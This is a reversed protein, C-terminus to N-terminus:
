RHPADAPDSGGPPISPARMAADLMAPATRIADFLEAYDRIVFYTPQLDDIRYTSRLVRPMDFALRAPVGDVTGGGAARGTAHLTEARSSLIGAGYARLGDEQQILGFEVMHWYFRALPALQGRAEAAFGLHGYAELFRAYAPDTLLPVHGLFDHFIDPEVIYDLEEPRRIWHTVPFKRAALLAFFQGDPILGPAPVISWGTADHLIASARDFDPAADDCDLRDLGALWATAARGPFIARQRAVLTRWTAHDAATFRVADPPLTGDAGARAYDGRLGAPLSATGLIGGPATAQMGDM